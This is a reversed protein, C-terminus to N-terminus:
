RAIWRAVVVATDKKTRSRADAGCCYLLLKWSPRAARGLFVFWAQPSCLHLGFKTITFVGHAGCDNKYGPRQSYCRSLQRVENSKIRTMDAETQTLQTSRVKAIEAELVTAAPRFSKLKATYEALAAENKLDALIPVQGNAGRRNSHAVPM